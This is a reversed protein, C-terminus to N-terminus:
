VGPQIGFRRLQMRGDTSLYEAIGRLAGLDTNRAWGPVHNWAAITQWAVAGPDSNGAMLADLVLLDLPTATIGGAIDPAALFGAERGARARAMLARNLAQAGEASACVDQTVARVHGGQIMMTLQRLAGDPGLARLAPLETLEGYDAPGGTLHSIVAQMAAVDLALSIYPQEAMPQCQGPPRALVFRVKDRRHAQESLALRRVGRAYVDCRFGRHLAIDGMLERLPGAKQGAMYAALPPPMSTADLAEAPHASAVRSLGAEAMRADMQSPYLPQWNENLYEHALYAPNQQRLAAVQGALNDLGPLGPCAAALSAAMDLAQTLRDLLPGEGGEVQEMLFQRLATMGAWGVASNWSIFFLGGPKLLRAVIDLILKQNAPSVWTFIGHAVIFDCAPLDSRQALEAFSDTMLDLNRVGAADRLDRANDIHSPLFDNALFRGHPFLAAALVANAGRGCGLELFTFEEDLRPAAIGAWLCALSLWAPGQERCIGDVYDIETVYGEQRSM